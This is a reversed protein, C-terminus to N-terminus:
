IASSKKKVARAPRSWMVIFGNVADQFVNKVKLCKQFSIGPPLNIVLHWGYETKKKAVIVPRRGDKTKFGLNDFVDLVTGPIRNDKMVQKGFLKLGPRMRWAHRIHAALEAGWQEEKKAM